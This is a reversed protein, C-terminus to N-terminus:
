TISKRKVLTIENGVANFSVEDMFLRILALGHGCDATLNSPDSRPDAFAAPDFGPGQDRITFRAEAPTLQAIVDVRSATQGRAALCGHVIANRLAEALCGALRLRDQEAVLELSAAAQQLQDVLAPILALDGDLVYHLQQYVLFRAV